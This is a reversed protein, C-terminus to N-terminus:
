QLLNDETAEDPKLFMSYYIPMHIIKGSVHIDRDNCLVIGENVPYDENAVFRNIASYIQYDRGSKVEIPLVALAEYDDILFDVEGNKRNDYYFLREFGIARLQSAIATEYLAGLNISRVDDLIPKTNNQYLICSLLGVDNMYLKLLNKDESQCLPFIPNSIAKVDNAIGSNILYDFEDAYSSFRKGKVGEIEKVVIRKKTNQMTSPLMDYIHRIKLKKEEDRKSADARYFRIIDSQIQRIKAVNKTELFTNVCDPMGGVILYKRFLDLIRNHLGEELPIRNEFKERMASIASSGCGNALLFEEFDLQYMRKREISGIPISTTEALALGLLSGSAIYTYKNEQKLFKLLTLLGPYEQIEDIFILTNERKDLKEGAISSVAIYFSETSHVNEFVKDHEKDEAMNIEIYNAFLDKGVKRIIFSKGIQRAGEVLLIKNSSSKLHDCIYSEIKRFLM